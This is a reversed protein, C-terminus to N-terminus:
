RRALVDLWGEEDCAVIPAAAGLDRSLDAAQASSCCLIGDIGSLSGVLAQAQTQPRVLIWLGVGTARLRGSGAVTSAVGDSSETVVLLDGDLPEVSIQTEFGAHGLLSWGWDYATVLGGASRRVPEARLPAPPRSVLAALIKREADSLKRDPAQVILYPQRVMPWTAAIAQALVGRGHAPLRPRLAAAERILAM